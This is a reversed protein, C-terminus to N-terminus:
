SVTLYYIGSNANASAPTFSAPFNSQGTIYVTPHAGNVPPVNTFAAVGGIFPGTSLNALFAIYYSGAAVARAGGSLAGSVWTNGPTVLATSIDNTKDILTGSATYLAIGSYGTATLGENTMWAGLTTVTSKPIYIRVFVCVGANLQFHSSTQEIRLTQTILGLAAASQDVAASLDSAVTVNVRNNASDDALTLQSNAGAVFNIEPRTGVVTGGDGVKVQQVSSDAPVASAKLSGDANHSVSLYDNLITGWSGDDAGPTPLRSM